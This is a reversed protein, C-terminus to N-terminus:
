DFDNAFIEDGLDALHLYIASVSVLNAIVITGNAQRYSPFNNFDFDVNGATYDTSGQILILLYSDGVTLPLGASLFSFHLHPCFGSQLPSNLSLYDGRTASGVNGIRTEVTPSSACLLRGATLTTNPPSASPNYVDGPIISSGAQAALTGALTGAGALTAGTEVIVEPSALNGDVELLGQQVTTDGTYTDNGTLQLFGTGVKTLAGGSGGNSGGDAISGDITQTYNLSGISLTQGGLFIKAGAIGDAISGLTSPATMYSYDVTAGNYIVANAATSSDAFYITAGANNTIQATGASSAGTFYVAGNNVIKSNADDGSQDLWLMGGTDITFTNSTTTSLNLIGDHLHLLTSLPIQFGCAPGYGFSVAELEVSQSFTVATCAATNFDAIDEPNGGPVGNPNWNGATNWNSSTAGTWVYTNQAAAPSPILLAGCIAFLCCPIQLRFRM